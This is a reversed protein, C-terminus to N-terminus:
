WPLLPYHAFRASGGEDVRGFAIAELPRSFRTEVRFHVLRAEMDNLSGTTVAEYVIRTRGCQYDARATLLGHEVVVVRVDGFISDPVAPVEDCPVSNCFGHGCDSIMVSQVMMLRMLWSGALRTQDDVMRFTAFSAGGIVVAATLSALAVSASRRLVM